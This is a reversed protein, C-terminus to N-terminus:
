PTPIVLTRGVRLPCSDPNLNNAAALKTVSIGFRKAIAGCVDGQQVTYDRTTSIATPKSALTAVPIVADTKPIILKQGVKLFCSTRGLNNAAVLQAATIKFRYAIGGCTDGSAVTYEAQTAFAPTAASTGAVSATATAPVRPIRVVNGVKLM